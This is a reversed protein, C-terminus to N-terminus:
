MTVQTVLIQDITDVKLLYAVEGCSCHCLWELQPYRAANSCHVSTNAYVGAMTQLRVELLTGSLIACGATRAQM